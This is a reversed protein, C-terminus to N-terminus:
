KKISELMAYFDQEAALEIQDPSPVTILSNVFTILGGTKSLCRITEYEILPENYSEVGKKVVDEADIFSLQASM